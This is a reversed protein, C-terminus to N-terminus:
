ILYWVSMMSFSSSQPKFIMSATSSKGLVHQLDNHLLLSLPVRHNKIKWYVVSFLQLLSSDAQCLTFHIYLVCRKIFTNMGFVLHRSCICFVESQLWHVREKGIWNEDQRQINPGIKYQAAFTWSRSETLRALAWRDGSTVALSFNDQLHGAILSRLTTWHLAWVSEM